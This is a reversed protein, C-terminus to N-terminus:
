FKLHNFSDIVEFSTRVKEISEGIQVIKEELLNGLTEGAKKLYEIKEPNLGVIRTCTSDVAVPDDGFVLVGVSKPKGQIPGNGDMGVIGDVIVFHPRITSNI